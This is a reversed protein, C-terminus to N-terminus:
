KMEELSNNKINKKKKLNIIHTILQKYADYFIFLDTNLTFKIKITWIISKLWKIIEFEWDWSDLVVPLMMTVSDKCISDKLFSWYVIFEPEIEPRFLGFVIFFQYECSELKVNLGFLVANLM